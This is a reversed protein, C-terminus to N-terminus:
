RADRVLFRRYLDNVLYASGLNLHTDVTSMFAAAFYALILGRLGIPVVEAILRPYAQSAPITPDAPLIFLACLGAIAWPWWRIVYHGVCFWLAGLRAHRENKAASMRQILVGGGDAYKWAWWMVFVFVLLTPVQEPTPVFSLADTEGAEVRAALRDALGSLGGVTPAGTTPDHHNLAYWAVLVAGGIALVFQFLDTVVVGWFGGAMSYLLALALCTYLVINGSSLWAEAVGDVPPADLGFAYCIQKIAFFVGGLTIGNLVFAFFLGKIARLAVATRGDYRVECLEADTVVEARRWRGALFFTVFLHSIALSLWIWNGFLGGSVIIEAILLPTDLAFTTAVMSTGLLWWPLSRGSLFFDEESRGARQSFWAGVLLTFVLYGAVTAYDAVNLELRATTEALVPSLSTM